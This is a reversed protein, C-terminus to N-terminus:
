PNLWMSNDNKEPLQESESPGWSGAKYRHLPIKKGLLPTYLSWSQEVEDARVFLTQDGTIVDLLLTEYATHIHPGFVDSYKFSLKQTTLSIPQGAGKVHFHLDFGEDPQITIVLMNSQITCSSEFPKFMSIPPCRFNVVIQSLRKKMRKGTRLYFSVGQWRWSAIQVKLAAFTETESAESVGSEERYSPVSKGDIEGRGYQGFVVDEESLPFIQRLVKVKENRIADSDFSAPPEMAVLTLLQTLHNQAMDRLAGSKEYFAARKEIGIDEAVTIQVSEIHDRNWLPEFLANAFRFVLLNQVTEKGLFHDIRYIQSEDFYNHIIANLEKASALDFGFPKEVVLRTWGRSKNLRSEGLGNIAGAVAQPPLALNFVRNGPLGHLRELEMIRSALNQYDEATGQGISQYYICEDCWNKMQMDKSFGHDELVDGVLSRYSTDDFDNSRSVGIIKSKGQLTGHASLQFLAPLLLRKTLDGTGGFIVFVHSEIEKELM